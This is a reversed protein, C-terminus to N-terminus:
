ETTNENGSCLWVSILRSIFNLQDRYSCSYCYFLFFFQKLFLKKINIFLFHTRFICNSSPIGAHYYVANFNTFNAILVCFSGFGATCLMIWSVFRCGLKEINKYFSQPSHASTVCNCFFELCDVQRIPRPCYQKTLREHVSEQFTGLSLMEKLWAYVIWCGQGVYFILNLWSM